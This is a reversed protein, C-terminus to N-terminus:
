GTPAKFVAAGDANYLTMQGNTSGGLVKVRSGGDSHYLLFGAEQYSARTQNEADRIEFRAKAGDDFYMRLRKNGAADYICLDQGLEALTHGEDDLIRLVKCSVVDGAAWAPSPRVLLSMLAGGVLGSVVVLVVLIRFQRGDM